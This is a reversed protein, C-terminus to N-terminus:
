FPREIPTLSNGVMVHLTNILDVHVRHDIGDVDPNLSAQGGEAAGARVVAELMRHETQDSHLAKPKNALFAVMAAIAYGGWNSVGAFFLVDTTVETAIDHGGVPIGRIKRITDVIRGCGIENGGDGVGITPIGRESALAFFNHYAPVDVVPYGLISCYVGESNPATCEVSVMATPQYKDILQAAIGQEEITEEYREDVAAWRPRAMATDADLFQFGAARATAVVPGSHAESSIFVPVAGTAANIAHAIAAGGLPGDTEGFPLYPGVGANCFVFVPRGPACNAMLLSAARYSLPDGGGEELAADYFPRLVGRPIHKGPGRMEVTVLRDIYEALVKPM